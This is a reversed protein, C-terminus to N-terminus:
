KTKNYKKIVNDTIDTGPLSYLAVEKPVVMAYGNDKAITNVIKILKEQIPKVLQTEKNVFEKEFEVSKRQLEMYKKQFEMEKDKLAEASLILRKKDLEEKMKQLDNRMIELKKQMAKADTELKSKAKKGENVEHLARNLDVYGLKTNEAKAISLMSIMMIVLGIIVIKSKM